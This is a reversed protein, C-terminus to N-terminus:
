RSPRPPWSPSSRSARPAPAWSGQRKYVDLVEFVLDREALAALVDDDPVAPGTPTMPRVGRFRPATMQREVLAVAEATSDTPPLGGIVAALLTDGSETAVRDVEIAEDVSYPGTAAAVNVVKTVNWGPAEARYTPADFRRAMGRVDGMGLDRGGGLYPYWDTLAPDWLHVHADVIRSPREVM